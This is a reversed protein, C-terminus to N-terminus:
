IAKNKLNQVTKKMKEVSFPNSIPFLLYDNGEILEEYWWDIERGPLDMGLEEIGAVNVEYRTNRLVALYNFPWAENWESKGMYNWFYQYNQDQIWHIYYMYGDEYVMIGADRMQKVSSTASIGKETTLEPNEKLLESMYPSVTNGYCYFTRYEDNDASARTKAKTWTGKNPDPTLGETNHSDDKIKARVRFLVGTVRNRMGTQLLKEWDSSTTIEDKGKTFESVFDLYLPSANELCYITAKKNADLKVFHQAADAKLTKNDFDTFNAIQNYYIKSPTSNVDGGPTIAWLFPYGFPADDPVEGNEKREAWEFGFYEGGQYSAIQWQQVLNFSNAANILTVDEVYVDHFKNGWDSFDFEANSCDVVIKAAVRELKVDVHYPKDYTYNTTDDIEIPVGGYPTPDTHELDYDDGFKAYVHTYNAFDSAENNTNVMLFHDPRWVNECANKNVLSYTGRFAKASSLDLTLGSGASNAVVYLQYGHKYEPKIEFSKTTVTNLMPINKLEVVPATEDDQKVLFVRFDSITREFDEDPKTPKFTRTSMGDGHSRKVDFRLSMYCKGDNLTSSGGNDELKDDICSQFFMCGLMASLILGFLKKM